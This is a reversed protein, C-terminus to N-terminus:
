KLANDKAQAYTDHWDVRGTVWAVNWKGEITSYRDHKPLDFSNISGLYDAGRYINRQGNERKITIRETTM